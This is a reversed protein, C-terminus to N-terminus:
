SGGLAHELADGSAAEFEDLKGAFFHDAGPV